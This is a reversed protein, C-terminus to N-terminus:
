KTTEGAPEVQATTAPAQVAKATVPEETFRALYQMHSEPGSFGVVSEDLDMQKYILRGADLDFKITGRQMRQVLQSMVKPDSAPTLLTTAVSITAVGAEVKELKYQQKTNVKKITGDELRVRVEEPISWTNGPKVPQNPFPITLEGIGPNFQKQANDRAVVRGYPDMTITALTKGVSEAVHEYGPPPQKDHTSNYRLEPRGSVSQWMDVEEVRHEFVINGNPEVKNIKWVKHSVSRTKATQEAGKIKTEVTVLHVVKTRFEEGVAFKYALKYSPSVSAKAKELEAALKAKTAADDALAVIGGFLWLGVLIKATTKM